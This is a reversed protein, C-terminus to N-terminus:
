VPDILPFFFGIFSEISAIADDMVCGGGDRVGRLSVISFEGSWSAPEVLDGSSDLNAM